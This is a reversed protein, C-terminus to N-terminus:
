HSFLNRCGLILSSREVLEMLNAIGVSFPVKWLLADVSFRARRLVWSIKTRVFDDTRVDVVKM